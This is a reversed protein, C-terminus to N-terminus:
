GSLSGYLETRGIEGRQQGPQSLGTDWHYGLRKWGCYDVPEATMRDVAMRTRRATARAEAVGESEVDGDDEDDEGDVGKDRETDVREGCDDNGEVVDVDPGALKDEPLLLM